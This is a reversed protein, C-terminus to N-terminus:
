VIIKFLEVTREVVGAVRQRGASAWSVLCCAGSWWQSYLTRQMLCTASLFGWWVVGSAGKGDTLSRLFNKQSVSFAAKVATLTCMWNEREESSDAILQWKQSVLLSTILFNMKLTSAAHNIATPTRPGSEEGRVSQRGQCPNFIRVDRGCKEPSTEQKTPHFTGLPLSNSDHM